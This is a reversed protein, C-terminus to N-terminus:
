DDVAYVTTYYPSFATETQVYTSTSLRTSALASVLGKYFHSSFGKQQFSGNRVDVCGM